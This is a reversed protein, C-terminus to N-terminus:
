PLIVIFSELMYMNRIRERDIKITSPIEVDSSDTLALALEVGVLRPPFEVEVRLEWSWDTRFAVVVGFLKSSSLFQVPEIGVKGVTISANLDCNFVLIFSAVVVAKSSTPLFEIAMEDVRWGTLPNKTYITCTTSVALWIWKTATSAPSPLINDLINSGVVSIALILLPGIGPPGAPGTLGM